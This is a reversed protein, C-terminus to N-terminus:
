FDVLSGDEEKAERNFVFVMKGEVGVCALRQGGRKSFCLCREDALFILPELGDNVMMRGRLREEERGFSLLAGQGQNNELVAWDRRRQWRLAVGTEVAAEVVVSLGLEAEM